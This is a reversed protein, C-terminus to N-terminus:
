MKEKLDTATQFSIKRTAPVQVSAGTSPNRASRAPMDKVKFTGFKPIRIDEGAVLESTLVEIVGDIQTEAEKKTIGQREAVKTVLEQKTLM